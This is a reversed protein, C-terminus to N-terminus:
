KLEKAFFFMSIWATMFCLGGLPTIAGLFTFNSLALIYLSGSFVLIGISFLIAARHLHKSSNNQLLVSVVLLAITHYFHYRVAIEFTDERNNEILFSSLSHAGFAGIAVALLGFISAIKLVKQSTM